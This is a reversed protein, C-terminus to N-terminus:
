GETKQRRVEKNQREVRYRGPAPDIVKLISDKWRICRRGRLERVLALVFTDSQANRLREAYQAIQDDTAGALDVRCDWHRLKGIWFSDTVYPECAIYVHQPFPDLYPECSVSTAYGKNYCHKLGELRESFSTAGPEWFHLIDESVSGITFRFLIQSRWPRLVEAMLKVCVLTPKSVILVENGAELLKRLVVLCENINAPTIDHTSPLMVPQKDFKPYQRDVKAANIVPMSWAARTCRKFRTVADARAYCYRCDHECGTQININVEAWEKTGSPRRPPSKSKQGKAEM